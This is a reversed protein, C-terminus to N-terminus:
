ALRDLVKGGQGERVGLALALHVAQSDRPRLLLEEIREHPVAQREFVAVGVPSVEPLARRGGNVSRPLVDRPHPAGKHRVKALTQDEVLLELLWTRALHELGLVGVACGREELCEERMGRALCFTGDAQLVQSHVANALVQAVSRGHVEHGAGEGGPDVIGTGDAHRALVGQLLAPEKSLM